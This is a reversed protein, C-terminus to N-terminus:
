AMNVTLKWRIYYDHFVNLYTQMDNINEAFIVTDDAYLLILIKLVDTLISDDINIGNCQETNLCNELDNIFIAFLLLSM